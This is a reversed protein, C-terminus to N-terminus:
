MAFFSRQFDVSGVQWGLSFRTVYRQRILRRNVLRNGASCVRRQICAAQGSVNTTVRIRLNANFILKQALLVSSMVQLMQYTVSHRTFINAPTATKLKYRSHMHTKCLRLLLMHKRRNEDTARPQQESIREQRRAAAHGEHM